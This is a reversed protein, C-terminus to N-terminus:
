HERGRPVPGRQWRVPAVTERWETPEQAGKLACSLPQTRGSARGAQQEGDSHTARHGLSAGTRGTEEGCAPGERGARRGGAPSHGDCASLSVRLGAHPRHRGELLKPPCRKRWESELDMHLGWGLRQPAWGKRFPLVSQRSSCMALFGSVTVDMVVLCVSRVPTRTVSPAHSLPRWSPPFALSLCASRGGSLRWALPPSRLKGLASTGPLGLGLPRLM